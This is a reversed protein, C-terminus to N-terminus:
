RALLDDIRGLSSEWGEAHLRASALDALGTQRLTEHVEMRLRSEHGREETVRDHWAWSLEVARSAPNEEVRVVKGSVKHWGGDEGIMVSHWPGVNGLDLQHSGLTIGRPGWWKALTGAHTILAFGTLLDAKIQKELFLTNDRPNVSMPPDRVESQKRRIGDATRDDVRHM